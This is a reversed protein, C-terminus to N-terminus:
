SSFDWVGVEAPGFPRFCTFFSGFCAQPECFAQCSPQSPSPESPQPLRSWARALRSPQLAPPEFIRSAHSPEAPTCLKSSVRSSKVRRSAVGQARSPKVRRSACSPNVANESATPRLGSSPYLRVRRYHFQERNAVTPSSSPESPTAQARISCVISPSPLLPPRVISSGVPVVCHLVVCM